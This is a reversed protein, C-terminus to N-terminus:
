HPKQSPSLVPFIRSESSKRCFTSVISKLSRPATVGQMSNTYEGPLFVPTPCGNQEGPFRGPGPISDLDGMSCASGQGPAVLSARVLMVLKHQM